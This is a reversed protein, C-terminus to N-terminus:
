TDVGLGDVVDCLRLANEPTPSKRCVCVAAEQAKIQRVHRETLERDFKESAVAKEWERRLKNKEVAAQERSLRRERHLWYINRLTTYAMQDPLSLGDPLEAGHMAGQEWPFTWQENM